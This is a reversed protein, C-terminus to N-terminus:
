MRACRNFPLLRSKLGPESTSIVPVSIELQATEAGTEGCLRCHEALAPNEHALVLYAAYGQVGELLVPCNALRAAIIVGCLAALEYGGIQTLATLGKMGTAPKMLRVVSLDDPTQGEHLAILAQASVASGHGFAGAAMLDLGPEVAMMGYAMCRVLDTATLGDETTLPTM